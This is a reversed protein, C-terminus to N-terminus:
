FARFVLLILLALVVLVAIAVPMIVLLATLTMVRLERRDGKVDEFAKSLEEQKKEDPKNNLRRFIM